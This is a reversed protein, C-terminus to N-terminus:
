ERKSLRPQSRPWHVEDATAPGRELSAADVQEVKQQEIVAPAPANGTLKNGLDRFFAVPPSESIAAGIDQDKAAGPAALTLLCALGLCFRKKMPAEASALSGEARRFDQAM